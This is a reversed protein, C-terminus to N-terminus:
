ISEDYLLEDKKGIPACRSLIQRVAYAKMRDNRALINVMYRVAHYKQFYSYKSRFAPKITQLYQAQTYISAAKHEDFLPLINQLRQRYAAAESHGLYSLKAVRGSLRNHLTHYQETTRGSKAMQECSHLEARIDRRDERHARPRGRNLWLGTVEMLDEPNSRSVIRQKKNNLRSGGKKLFAKVSKILKEIENSSFVGDKSITIDDLLRTYRYNKVACFQAFHYEGDYFALNALHSSTCAGQPVAGQHTCLDALLTSVDEPFKFIYQFIEVVRKHKISPYFNKVDLAIIANAGSHEGANKVYDKEKIGGHLYSPYSINDFIQRNIRKQIIKLHNTPILISRPSGDKKPIVYPHYHSNIQLATGKLIGLEVQLTKSLADLSGIPKNKYYARM